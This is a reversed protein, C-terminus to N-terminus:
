ALADAPAEAALNERMQALAVRVAEVEAISLGRTTEDLVSAAVAAIAGLAPRAKPTAAVLKARRDAPDTRRAVLGAAELRDLLGTLTMPEIALAEALSAQRRGPARGILALTRAEAHTLGLGARDLARDYRRRLLRAVEVVLFGLTDHNAEVM